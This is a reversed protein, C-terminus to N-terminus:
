RERRGVVEPWYCIEDGREGGWWRLGIVDKGLVASSTTLSPYRTANKLDVLTRTRTVICGNYRNFRDETM